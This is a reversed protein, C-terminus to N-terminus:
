QSIKKYLFLCKLVMTTTFAQSGFIAIRKFGGVFYPYINKYKKDTIEQLLIKFEKDILSTPLKYIIMTCIAMARLLINEFSNTNSKNEFYRHFDEKLVEFQSIGSEYARAIHYFLVEKHGYYKLTPQESKVERIIQKICALTLENQGLYLIVNAAVSPEKDSPHLFRLLFITKWSKFFDKLLGWWLSNNKLFLSPTPVFWTKFYGKSDKCYDFM